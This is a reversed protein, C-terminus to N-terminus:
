LEEGFVDSFSYMDDNLCDDLLKVYADNFKSKRSMFERILNEGSFGESILDRLILDDYIAKDEIKEIIIKGNIINICVTDNLSLNLESLYSQPIIVGKSNGINRIKTEM